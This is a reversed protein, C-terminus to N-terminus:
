LGINEMYRILLKVRKTEPIFTKFREKINTLLEKYDQNKTMTYYKILKIANDVDTIPAYKNFTLVVDKKDIDGLKLIDYKNIKTGVYYYQKILDNDLIFQILTDYTTISECMNDLISQIFNLLDQEHIIERIFGLINVYSLIEFNDRRLHQFDILIFLEDTYITIDINKFNYTIYIPKDLKKFMINGMHLDKNYLGYKDYLMYQSLFIQLIFMVFKSKTCNIDNHRSCSGLSIGDVYEMIFVAQNHSKSMDFMELSDDNIILVENITKNSFLYRFNPIYKRMNNTKFTFFEEFIPNIFSQKFIINNNIQVVTKNTDSVLIKGNEAYTGIFNRNRDFFDDVIKSYKLINQYDYLIEPVVNLCNVSEM